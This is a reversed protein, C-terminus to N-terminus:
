NPGAPLTPTGSRDALQRITANLTPVRVEPAITVLPLLVFSREHLRPHPITLGPENLILDGYLLLDLDLTRPGWRQEKTRDRGLSREIALLQHLLHRPPLSTNIVAAGNLYRPQPISGVPETEIFSSVRLIRTGPLKAIAALGAELTARRDGLNSGLGIAATILHDPHPIHAHPV